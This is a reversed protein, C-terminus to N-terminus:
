ERNYRGNKTVRFVCGIMVILGSLGGKFFGKHLQESANYDCKSVFWELTNTGGSETNEIGVVADGTESKEDNNVVHVAPVCNRCTSPGSPESAGGCQTGAENDNWQDVPHCLGNTLM